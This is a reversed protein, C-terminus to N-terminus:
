VETVTYGGHGVVYKGKIFGSDNNSVLLECGLSLKKILLSKVHENTVTKIFESINM